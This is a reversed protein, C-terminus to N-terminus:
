LGPPVSIQRMIECVELFAPNLDSNRLRAYVSKRASKEDITVVLGSRCGYRKLSFGDETKTFELDPDNTSYASMARPILGIRGIQSDKVAVFYSDM